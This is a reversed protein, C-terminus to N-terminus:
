CTATTTHTHTHTHTSLNWGHRLPGAASAAPSHSSPLPILCCSPRHVRGGGQPRIQRRGCLVTDRGNVKRVGNVASFDCYFEVSKSHTLFTRLEVVNWNSNSSRWMGLFHTMDESYSPRLVEFKICQRLVYAMDPMDSVLVMVELTLAWPWTTRRVAWVSLVYLGLFMLIPLFTAWGMLLSACSNWLWLDLDGSLNIGSNGM